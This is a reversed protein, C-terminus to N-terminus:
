DDGLEELQATLKKGEPSEMWAAYNQSGEMGTRKSFAALSEDALASRKQRLAIKAKVKAMRKRIRDIHNDRAHVVGGAEDQLRSTDPILDAIEPNSFGALSLRAELSALYNLHPKKADLGPLPDDEYFTIKGRAERAKTVLSEARERVDRTLAYVDDYGKNARGAFFSDEQDRITAFPLFADLAAVLEILAHSWRRGGLREPGYMHELSAIGHIMKELARPKKTEDTEEQSGPTRRLNGLDDKTYYGSEVLWAWGRKKMERTDFGVMKDVAARTEDNAFYYPTLGEGNKM